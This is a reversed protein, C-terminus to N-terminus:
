FMALMNSRIRSNKLVGLNVRDNNQIGPVQWISTYVFEERRERCFYDIDIMVGRIIEKTM